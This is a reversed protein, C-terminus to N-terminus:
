LVNETAVFPSLQEDLRWWGFFEELEPIISSQPLLLYLLSEISLYLVCELSNEIPHTCM